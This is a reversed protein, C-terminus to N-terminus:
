TRVRRRDAEVVGRAHIESPRRGIIRGLVDTGGGPPFPVVM